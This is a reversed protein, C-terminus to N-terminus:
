ITLRERTPKENGSVVIEIPTVGAITEHKSLIIEVNEMKYQLEDRSFKYTKGKHCVEELEGVGSKSFFAKHKVLTSVKGALRCGPTEVTESHILVELSNGVGSIDVGDLSVKSDKIKFSALM